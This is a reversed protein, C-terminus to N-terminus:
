SYPLDGLMFYWQEAGSLLCSKSALLARSPERHQARASGSSPPSTRRVFGLRNLGAILVPPISCGISMTSLHSRRAHSAWGSLLSDINGRGNEVFLDDCIACDDEVYYIVYGLLRDQDPTLLGMTTYRRLPCNSYRWRLFRSDRVTLASYETKLRDWLKDFREDFDPLVITLYSPVPHERPAWLAAYAADALRGAFPIRAHRHIYRSVRLVKAYRNVQFLEHYGARVMAAAGRPNPLGYIMPVSSDTSALLGKQLILAPQLFRHEKDVAMDCAIGVTILTDKIKMLRMGLSTTGVPRGDAELIWCRGQRYPNDLFHWTFKEELRTTDALNRNWIQIVVQRDRELNAEIVRYEPM